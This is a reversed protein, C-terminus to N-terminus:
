NSAMAPADPDIGNDFHPQIKRWWGSPQTSYHTAKVGWTENRRRINKLTNTTGGGVPVEYVNVKDERSLYSWEIKVKGVVIEDAIRQNDGCISFFDHTDVHAPINDWSTHASTWSKDEKWHGYSNNNEAAVWTLKKYRWWIKVDYTIGAKETEDLLDQYLDSGWGPNYRESDVRVDPYEYKESKGYILYSGGWDWESGFWTDSKKAFSPSVYYADWDAKSMWSSDSERNSSNRAIGLDGDEDEEVFVTELKYYAWNGRKSDADTNSREGTLGWYADSGRWSPYTTLTPEVAMDADENEPTLNKNLVLIAGAYTIVNGIGDAAAYLFAGIRKWNLAMAPPTSLAAAIAVVCVVKALHILRRKSPASHNRKRALHQVLRRKLRLLFLWPLFAAAMTADAEANSLPFSATELKTEKFSPYTEATAALSNASDEDLKEAAFSTFAAAAVAVISIITLLSTKIKM